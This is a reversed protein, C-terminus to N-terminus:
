PEISRRIPISVNPRIRRDKGSFQIFILKSLRSAIRDDMLEAIQKMSLNTTIITVLDRNVREELVEFTCRREHDSLSGAGLDDLVLCPHVCYNKMADGETSGPRYTQRVDLYLQSWRRFDAPKRDLLRERVVAAGVYTKGTGTPGSLLLGISPKELSTLIKQRLEPEINALSASRYLLPLARTIRRAIQCVCPVMGKRSKVWGDGSCSSCIRAAPSSIPTTTTMNERQHWSPQLNVTFEQERNVKKEM